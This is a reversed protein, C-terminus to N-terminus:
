FRYSLVDIAPGQAPLTSPTVTIADSGVRRIPTGQMVTLFEEVPVLECAKSDAAQTRYHTPIVLKPQLAQVAAKAEEPNFAKPSNGVPVLLVDPRGMLIKQELSIPGAIGGLHLVKVGAQTWAWAVNTGFRYGGVRDHETAIGQIELGDTKYNGPEYLLKPRGPLGEVSGEDLLRSSIMVLDASVKPPRYKATCGVTQFPNVLIRRGGGTFLFATHGLWQISLSGGGQALVPQWRSALTTGLCTLVAASSYRILSRRKM